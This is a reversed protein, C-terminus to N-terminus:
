FLFDHDNKIAKNISHIHKVADPNHKNKLEQMNFIRLLLNILYYNLLTQKLFLFIKTQM